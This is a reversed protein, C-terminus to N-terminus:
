GGADVCEILASILEEPPDGGGSAAALSAVDLGELKERACDEDFTEGSENMGAIFLDILADDDACGLLELGLAEGEPSLEADEGPEAAAAKAADEDSLQAAVDNVCAEDLEIGGSEAEDIASQAAAAQDDSLGSDGGGSGGDGDSGCAALVLVLIAALASSRKMTDGKLITAARPWRSM